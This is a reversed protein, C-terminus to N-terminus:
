AASGTLLAFGTCAVSAFLLIGWTQTWAKWRPMETAKVESIAILTAACLIASLVAAATYNHTFFFPLAPIVSGVFSAVGMAAAARLDGKNDSLYEGGSMGITACIALGMIVALMPAHELALPIVVGLASTIGDSVGFIFQRLNTATLRAVILDRGTAAARRGM